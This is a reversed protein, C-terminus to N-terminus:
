WYVIGESVEGLHRGNWTVDAVVTWSHVRTENPMTAAIEYSGDKGPGIEIDIREPKVLVGDPGRFTISGTRTEMEHNRVRIEFKVEDGPKVRVKYPYFEVWHPDMGLNPHPQDIIDTFLEAWRDM